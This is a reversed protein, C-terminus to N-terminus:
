IAKSKEFFKHSKSSECDIASIYRAAFPGLQKENFIFLKM